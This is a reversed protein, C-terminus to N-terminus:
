ILPKAALFSNRWSGLGAAAARIAALKAPRHSENHARLRWRHIAQWRYYYSGHSVREIEVAARLVGTDDDGHGAADVTRHGRRQELGLAIVHHAHRQLEVVMALGGMALTGTAGTLVNVVRAAHGACRCETRARSRSGSRSATISRKACAVDVAFRRHRRRSCITLERDRIVARARRGPTAGTM